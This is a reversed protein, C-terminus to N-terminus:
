FIEKILHALRMIKEQATWSEKDSCRFAKRQSILNQWLSPPINRKFAEQVNASSTQLAKVLDQKSVYHLLKQIDNDSWDALEDLGSHVRKKLFLRIEKEAEQLLVVKDTEKLKEIYNLHLMVQNIFPSVLLAAVADAKEQNLLYLIFAGVEPRKTKLFAALEEAKLLEAKQWLRNDPTYSLRSIVTKKHGEKYLWLCGILILAILVAGIRALIIPSLGLTWLPVKVFPLIAVSLRDGRSPDFGVAAEILKKYVALKKKNQKNILVSVSQRELVPGKQRVITETMTLPNYQKQVINKHVIEAQVSARVNGIGAAPELLDALKNELQEAYQKQLEFGFNPRSVPFLVRGVAILCVSILLLFLVKIGKNEVTQEKKAPM